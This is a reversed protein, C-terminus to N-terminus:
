DKYEEMSAALHYLTSTATGTAGDVQHQWIPANNRATGAIDLHLWPLNETFRKLFLGAAIAGCGDKTTNCVDALNSEILKEYEPFTPIRWYREGSRAAADELQKYFGDDNAMVGTTVNGLMDRISGTLTAVDVLRTVKEERIAWTMADCLILRGEADTNLVEITQGSFATIIDGPLTSLNSIRNECAPIVATVNAKVGNAALACVATAVAAGGAMDGKMRQMAKGPKLCYGGTDFTVGKGVYGLRENSEPAGDYRLVILCPENGSSTGVSLFARLGIKELEDKSYVQIEVPLGEAMTTIEKAFLLPTLLNAPRNALNRAQLVSKALVVAKSLVEDSWGDGMAYCDIMPECIGTLSDKQKYAGGYIGELAAFIGEEGQKSAVSLDFACSAKGHELVTKIAKGYIEKIALPSLEEGMGITIDMPDRDLYYRVQLYKGKVPQVVAQVNENHYGKM